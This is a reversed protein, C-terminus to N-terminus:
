CYKNQWAKGAKECSFAWRRSGVNWCQEEYSGSGKPLRYWQSKTRQIPYCRLLCSYRESFKSLRKKLGGAGTGGAKGRNVNGAFVVDGFQKRDKQHKNAGRRGTGAATDFTVVKTTKIAVTILTIAPLSSVVKCWRRTSFPRYVTGKGNYRDRNQNDDACGADNKGGIRM